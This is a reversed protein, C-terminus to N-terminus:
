EPPIGADLIARGWVASERAQFGALQGFPLVFETTGFNKHAAKADASKGADALLRYLASSVAGPARAPLYAALWFTIDIGKVGGENFTPLDPAYPSRQDDTVAIARLKGSSVHPWFSFDTFLMDIQGSVLDPLASAGSRYPVAVLKVGASRQLLEAPLRSTISTYGFTYRGPEKRLLATLESVSKAPVRQPNVYLVMPGKALTTVPTFDAVPDYPLKKFVHPNGTVAVNGTILVTHGDPEARAVAQAALVSGAGPKNDVLTVLGSARAVERALARVFVDPAAGATFPVVFTIPKDSGLQTQIQTSTLPQTQTQAQAPVLLPLVLACAWSLARGIRRPNARWVSRLTTM